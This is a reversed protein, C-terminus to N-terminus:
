QLTRGTKERDDIRFREGFSKDEAAKQLKKLGRTLLTKVTNTSIGLQSAIEAYKLSELRLLVVELERRSLVDLLPGLEDDHAYASFQRSDPPQAFETLEEFPGGHRREREEHHIIERRIVCFLWGRPNDITGGERLSRYLMMFAQQAIDESLELSGTIRFTYRVCIGYMSRFLGDVLRSAEDRDM